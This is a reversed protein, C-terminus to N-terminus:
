PRKKKKTKTKPKRKKRPRKQSRAPKPRSNQYSYLGWLGGVLIIVLGTLEEWDTATAWGKGILGAGIMGMVLRVARLLADVLSTPAM